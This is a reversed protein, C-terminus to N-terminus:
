AKACYKILGEEFAKDKECREFILGITRGRNGHAETLIKNIEVYLAEETYSDSM